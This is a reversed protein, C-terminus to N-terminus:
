KEGDIHPDFLLQTNLVVVDVYRKQKLLYRVRLFVIIYIM